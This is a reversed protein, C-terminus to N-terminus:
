RLAISIPEHINAKKSAPELGRFNASYHPSQAILTVIFYDTNKLWERADLPVNM